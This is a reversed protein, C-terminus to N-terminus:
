KTRSNRRKKTEPQEQQEQQEEQEPQETQEEQEQQKPVFLADIDEDTAIEFEKFGKAKWVAEGNKLFNIIIKRYRNRACTPCGKGRKDDKRFLRNYCDILEDLSKNNIGDRVFERALAMKEPTYGLYCKEEM